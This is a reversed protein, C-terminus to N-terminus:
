ADFIEDLDGGLSFAETEVEAALDPQSPEILTPAQNTGLVPSPLPDEGELDKIEVQQFFYKHSNNIKISNFRYTQDEWWIERGVLRTLCQGLKTQQSKRSGAGCYQFRTSEELGGVLQSASSKIQALPSSHSSVPKCNLPRRPIAQENCCVMESILFRAM